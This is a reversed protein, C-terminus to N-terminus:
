RGSIAIQCRHCPHHLMGAFSMVCRAAVNAYVSLHKVGATVGAGLAAARALAVWCTCDPLLQLHRVASVYLLCPVAATDARALGTSLSVLLSSSCNNQAM